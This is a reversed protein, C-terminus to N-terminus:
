GVRDTLRVFGNWPQKPTGPDWLRQAVARLPMRIGRAVQGETQAGANDCWVAFRGGLIRGPGQASPATGRLVSPSWRDYIREGTPYTFGNPQGLVYYLFADNLNVVDRGARLFEAPQRAGYERGTWYEVERDGQPAVRPSTHFGDDWAKVTKGRKRVAAARDNLWGTAADAVTADPGYRRRAYATLQPFATEPNRAMLAQYEDGGLHWYKGPFLQAYETDLDDILKGAAPKSIDIAGPVPVGAGNRLQLEPHARLVAGLHGPSDIEPIVTVHRQAALRVIERVDQETLHQPSVVEPHTTSAVRFGQDDSIHLHLQNLKLDGLERVRALLWGKTFYKRAIDVMLGRQPRDPRDAAVGAPVYGKARVAQLATRTGYFVGADSQATIVLRGRRSDLRYGEPDSRDGPRVVLQVDGPGPTGPGAAHAHLEHAFLRAEDRVAPDQALVRTGPQPWWGRGAAPHFGRVAPIAPLAATGAPLAAKRPRPVLPTSAPTGSSTQSSAQSSSSAAGSDRHTGPSTDCATLTLAATACALGARLLVHRMAVVM